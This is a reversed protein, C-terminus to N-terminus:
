NITQELAGLSAFFNEADGISGSWSCADCVMRVRESRNGGRLYASRSRCGPCGFAGKPDVESTPEYNNPTEIPIEWGCLECHLRHGDRTPEIHASRVACYPCPFEDNSNSPM